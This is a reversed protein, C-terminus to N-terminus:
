SLAQPPKAEGLIKSPPSAISGAGGSFGPKLGGVKLLILPNVRSITVILREV